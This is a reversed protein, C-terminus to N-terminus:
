LRVAAGVALLIAGGVGAVIIFNIVAAIIATIIANVTSFEAAERVGILYGIIRLIAIVFAILGVICALLPSLLTLVGVLSVLGFVEVFGTVRLMEGTDTTGGLAKAVFALVWATIVWAILGVITGIILGLIANGFSASISGTQPDVRVLGSFFGQVLLSIIVITAAQGTATRDDAIARYVPAKLTVVGMIRDLM